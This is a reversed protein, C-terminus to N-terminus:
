PIIKMRFLVSLAVIVPNSGAVAYKTRALVTVACNADACVLAKSANVKCSGGELAGILKLADAGLDEVISSAQCTHDLSDSTENIRLVVVFEYIKKSPVEKMMRSHLVRLSYPITTAM